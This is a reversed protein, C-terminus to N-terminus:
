CGAGAAVARLAEEVRVLDPRAVGAVACPDHVPPYALGTERRYNERFSGLMAPTAACDLIIPRTM